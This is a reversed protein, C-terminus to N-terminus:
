DESLSGDTHLSGPGNREIFLEIQSKGNGVLLRLRELPVARRIELKYPTRLGAAARGDGHHVAFGGPCDGM